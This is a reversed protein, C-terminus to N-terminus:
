IGSCRRIRWPRRLATPEAGAIGAPQMGRHSLARGQKQDRRRRHSRRRYSPANPIRSRARQAHFTSCSRPRKRRTHSPGRMGLHSGRSDWIKQLSAHQPGVDEISRSSIHHLTCFQSDTRKATERPPFGNLSKKPQHHANLARDPLVCIRGRKCSLAFGRRARLILCRCSLRGGRDSAYQCGNFAFM